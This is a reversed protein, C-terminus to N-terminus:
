DCTQPHILCFHLLIGFVLQIRNDGYYVVFGISVQTLLVPM